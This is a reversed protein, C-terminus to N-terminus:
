EFAEIRYSAISPGCPCAVRLDAQLISERLLM